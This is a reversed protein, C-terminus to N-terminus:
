KPWEAEPVRTLSKHAPWWYLWATAGALEAAVRLAQRKAPGFTAYPGGATGKVEVLRVEALRRGPEIPEPRCLVLDADGLSGAARVVFWGNSEELARVQRERNHGFAHGRAVPLDWRQM